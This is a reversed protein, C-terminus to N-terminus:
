KVETVIIEKKVTTDFMGEYVLTYSDNKPVLFLLWGATYTGPQLDIADFYNNMSYTQIDPNFTRGNCILTIFNPNVHISSNSYNAVAVGIRLFWTNQPDSPRWTTFGDYFSSQAIVDTVAVRALGTGEYTKMQEIIEARRKEMLAKEQEIEAKEILKDADKLDPNLKIAKKAIEIASAFEKNNYLNQAEKILEQSWLMKAEKIYEQALQFNNEDETVVDGFKEIAMEYEKEQLLQIGEKFNLESLIIEIEQLISVAERYREIDDPIVLSLQEKASIYDQAEFLQKGKTFAVLSKQLSEAHDLLEAVHEDKKISLALKYSEIADEYNQLEVSENGKTVAEAFEKENISSGIIIGIVILLFFLYFMSAIIKKWWVGSRFGPVKSLVGM